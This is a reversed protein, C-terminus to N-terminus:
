VQFLRYALWRGYDVGNRKSPHYNELCGYVVKGGSSLCCMKLVSGAYISCICGEAQVRACWCRIVGCDPNVLRNYQLKVQRIDLLTKLPIVMLSKWDTGPLVNLVMTRCVGAGYETVAGKVSYHKCRCAGQAAMYCLSCVVYIVTLFLSKGYLNM